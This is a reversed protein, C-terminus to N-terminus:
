SGSLNSAPTKLFLKWDNQMESSRLSEQNRDAKHYVWFSTRSIDDQM